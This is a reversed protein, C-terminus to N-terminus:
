GGRRAPGGPRRNRMLPDVPSPPASWGPRTVRIPWCFLGTSRWNAEDALRASDALSRAFIRLTIAAHELTEVNARLTVTSYPPLLSRPNLKTSEEAQRLADDV